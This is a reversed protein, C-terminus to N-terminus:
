HSNISRRYANPTKKVVSKFQKIFQMDTSYGLIEAIKAVTYDTSMLLQKAYETRSNILDSIPSIGFYLKYLYQFYSNSLHISESLERVSYKKCPDSYINDRINVLEPYYKRNLHNRSSNNRLKNLIINFLYYLTSDKTSSDAISEAQMIRIIESCLLVDPSDYFVNFCIDSGIHDSEHESLEVAVWDNIFPAGAASFHHPTNKSIFIMSDVSLRIEKGNIYFLAPSRIILFLYDPLGTPRDLRFHNDHKFDYGISTINM